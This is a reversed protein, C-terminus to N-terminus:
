VRGVLAVALSRRATYLRSMVTGIPIGTIEAIERYSLEEFERLVIMERQGAPLAQIAAALRDRLEAREAALIRADLPRDSCIFVTRLDGGLRERLASAIALAPFLHGGTGGGAFIFTRRSM